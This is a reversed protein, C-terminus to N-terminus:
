TMYGECIHQQFQTSIQGQSKHQEKSIIIAFFLVLNGTKLIM